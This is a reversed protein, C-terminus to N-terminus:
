LYIYLVCSHAKEHPIPEVYQREAEHENKELMVHIPPVNKRIPLLLLLMIVASGSLSWQTPCM